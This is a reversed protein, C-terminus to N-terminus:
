TSGRKPHKCYEMNKSERTGDKEWMSMRRTYEMYQGVLAVSSRRGRYAFASRAQGTVAIDQLFGGGANIGHEDKWKDSDNQTDFHNTTTVITCNFHTELYAGLRQITLERDSMLYAVCGKLDGHHKIQREVISNFCYVERSIDTGNDKTGPHRSHIGISFYSPDPVVIDSKVSALLDDTLLFSEFFLMGYLFYIGEKYLKQVHERERLPPESIGFLESYYASGYVDTINVNGWFHVPKGEFGGRRLNGHLLVEDGYSKKVRQGKDVQERLESKSLDTAKVAVADPLQDKYDEMRPVWDAIRLFRECIELANISSSGGNYNLLLTRNSAIALLLDTAWRNAQM